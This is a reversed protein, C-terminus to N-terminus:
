GPGIGSEMANEKTREEGTRTTQANYYGIPGPEEPKLLTFVPEGQKEKMILWGMGTGLGLIICVGIVIGVIVGAPLESSKKIVTEPTANPAPASAPTEAIPTTFPCKLGDTKKKLEDPDFFAVGSQFNMAVSGTIVHIAASVMDLAAVGNRPGLTSASFPIKIYEAQKVFPAECLAESHNHLFEIKKMAPDWAADVIVMVDPDATVVDSIKVCGWSGDKGSFVNTFGAEKMLMNPVGTGAGVYVQNPDPNGEADKCCRGVCDLWVAKLQTKGLSKDLAAVTKEAIDFDNRIESILQEATSRVDFIEGMQRIAAYVTEESAGGQPRFASDECSVPELWTGIGKAHLQPRCTSYSTTENVSTSGGAFWDSGLGGCPGVDTANSFIGRCKDTCTKERFASRYSGLIFDPNVAMIEAETPYSSSLVPIKEYEGRYRPWIADDLYATGAMKSSLGMALMFETVGQNMTVTRNPSKQLTHSVGCTTYTTPYNQGAACSVLMLMMPVSVSLMNRLGQGQMQLCTLM